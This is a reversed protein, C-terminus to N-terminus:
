ARGSPGWRRPRGRARLRRGAGLLLLVSVWPAGGASRGAVRCGCGEGSSSAAEGGVGGDPDDGGGCGPWGGEPSWATDAFVHGWDADAPAGPVLALAGPKHDPAELTRESPSARPGAIISYRLRERRMPDLAAIRRAPDYPRWAPEFFYTFEPGWLETALLGSGL